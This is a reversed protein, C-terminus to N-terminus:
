EVVMIETSPPRSPLLYGTGFTGLAEAFYILRTVRETTPLASFAIGGASGEVSPGLVSALDTVVVGAAGFSTVPFQTGNSRSARVNWATSSPTATYPTGPADAFSLFILQNGGSAAPALLNPTYYAALDLDTPQIPQFWVHIGDIPVGYPPEVPTPPALPAAESATVVAPDVFAHRAAGAAGWASNTALNAITFNGAVARTVIPMSAENIGFAFAVGTTAPLGAARLEGVDVVRLALPGLEFDVSFPVSFGGSLFLVRVQLSEARTNRVNLFTNFGERADFYFVVQDGVGDPQRAVPVSGLVVGALTPRPLGCALLLGLCVVAVRGRRKM